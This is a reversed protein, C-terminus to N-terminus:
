SGNLLAISSLLAQRRDLNLRETDIQIQGLSQWVEVWAALPRLDALREPAGGAARRVIGDRGVGGIRAPAAPLRGPAGRELRLQRAPRRIRVFWARQHRVGPRRQAGACPHTGHQAIPVNNLRKIPNQGKCARGYSM